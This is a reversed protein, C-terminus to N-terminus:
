TCTRRFDSARAVASSLRRHPHLYQHTVGSPSSTTEVGITRRSARWDTGSRNVEGPCSRFLPSTCTTSSDPPLSSRSRTPGGGIRVDHGDAAERAIELAEAPTRRHLSVDDWRGDHDTPPSPPHSRLRTHPLAPQPGVLREMPITTGDPRASSTRAWSRRASAQLSRQAFSDDIGSSGGPKGAVRGLIAHRVDVRYGTGAHGFPEDQTQGEGTGFGDLSIAFNHVRARSMAQHEEENPGDTSGMIAWLHEMERVLPHGVACAAAEAPELALSQRAAASPSVRFRTRGPPRSWGSRCGTTSTPSGRLRGKRTRSSTSSSLSPLVERSHLGRVPRLGSRRRFEPVAARDPLGHAEGSEDFEEGVVLGLHELGM